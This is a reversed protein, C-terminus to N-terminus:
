WVMAQFAVKSANVMVRGSVPTEDFNVTSRDRRDGTLEVTRPLSFSLAPLPRSFLGTSVDPLKSDKVVLPPTGAIGGTMRLELAGPRSLFAVLTARSQCGAYPAVFPYLM